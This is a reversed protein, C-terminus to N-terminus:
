KNSYVNGGGWEPLAPTPSRKGGGWNPLTPTPSGNGEDEATASRLACGM